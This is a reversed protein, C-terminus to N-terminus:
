LHVTMVDGGGFAKSCHPCKRSRSNVREEVCERCFLHGCLKLATNKFRSKCVNCLALTQVTLRLGYLSDFSSVRLMEFEESQDGAAKLQLESALKEAAEAQVRLKEAETEAERRGRAAVAMAANKERLAATVQGLQTKMSEVSGEGRAVQQQLVGNQDMLTRLADRTEALQKELNGLKAQMAAEAEKCQAVITATQATGARLTRVEAERQEKAKMTSFYKQDAKAKEASLRAIREEAAAVDMVKKSALASAKKWAAGMSPLEGSLLTHERELKEYRSRLEGASLNELDARTAAESSEGLHFRLREVESELARIREERASALEKIQQYATAEKDHAAKSIAMSAGLEDRASRIRALDAEAKALQGELETVPAQVEGELQVRYASREAQLKEAEQRLQVNTAELGNIRKIVDEYQVKVQKFLDSKAYDDDTLSSLKVTMETVQGSLEENEAALKDLQERQKEAVAVAEKRRTEAQLYIEGNASVGNVGDGSRKRSTTAGDGLGGDADSKRTAQQELKAVTASKARDLKAEARMYRMMANSLREELQDRESRARDLAAHHEKEEALLTALRKELPAVDPSASKPLNEFILTLTERIQDKKGDLHRQFLNIDGSLLSPPLIADDGNSVHIDDIKGVLIRVEDLLQNWWADYARIHEDHYTAQKTLDSIQAEMTNRERKYERMRRCLADKQYHELEEKWPVDVQPDAKPGGNVAVAHRKLPPAAADDHGHTSPRKREEM